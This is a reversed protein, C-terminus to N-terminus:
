VAPLPSVFLKVQAAKRSRPRRIATKERPGTQKIREVAAAPAVNIRRIGASVGNWGNWGNWGNRAADSFCLKCSRSWWWCWWRRRENSSSSSSNNNNNKNNNNIRRHFEGLECFSGSIQIWSAPWRRRHFAGLHLKRGISQPLKLQLQSSNNDDNNNEYDVTSEIGHLRQFSNSVRASDFAVLRMTAFYLFFFSFLFFVFYFSLYFRWLVDNLM